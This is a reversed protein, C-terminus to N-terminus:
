KSERRIRILKLTDQYVCDNSHLDIMLWRQGNGEKQKMTSKRCKM